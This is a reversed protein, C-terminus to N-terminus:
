AVAVKLHGEDVRRVIPGWRVLHTQGVGGESDRRRTHICQVVSGLVDRPHEWGSTTMRIGRDEVASTLSVATGERGM